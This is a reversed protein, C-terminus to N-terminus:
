CVLSTQGFRWPKGLFALFAPPRAEPRPALSTQEAASGRGEDPASATTALVAAGSLICFGAIASGVNELM